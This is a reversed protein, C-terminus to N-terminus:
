KPCEISEGVFDAKDLLFILHERFCPLIQEMQKDIFALREMFIIVTAATEKGAITRIGAGCPIWQIFISKDASATGAVIRDVDIRKVDNCVACVTVKEYLPPFLQM